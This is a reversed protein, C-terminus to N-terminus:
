NTIEDYKYVFVYAKGGDIEQWSDATKKADRVIIPFRPEYDRVVFYSQEVGVMNMAENMTDRSPSALMAYYLPALPSGSPVPYYFISEPKGKRDVMYYTKFGFEKISASAVVQNAIAIYRNNSGDEDIFRAAAIDTSSLSHGHFPTYADNRPYSVYLTATLVSAFFLPAMIRILTFKQFFVSTFLVSLAYAVFPYLFIDAISVLREVYDNQEFSALSEFHIFGSTLLAECRLAAYLALCVFLFHRHFSNKEAFMSRKFLLFVGGAAFILFAIWGNRAFFYATDLFPFFRTEFLPTRTLTDLLTSLRPISITIPLLPSLLSNIYFALPISTAALFAGGILFTIRAARVRVFYTLLLAVFLCAPIGALPHLSLAFLAFTGALILSRPQPRVCTLASSLMVLLITGYALGWPTTMIFYSYPVALFALIVLLCQEKKIQFFHHLALFALPPISLALILPLLSQHIWEIPLAFLRSFFPVLVYQGIYYFTKPEVVGNIVVIREAAMHLIPDFGFGLPFRIWAVSFSALFHIALICLGLAGGVGRVVATILVITSLTYLVLPLSSLHDWPGLVSDTTQHTLLFGFFGTILPCYLGLFLTRPISPPAKRLDSPVPTLATTLVSALHAVLVPIWLLVILTTESLSGLVYIGSGILTLPVISVLPALLLAICRSSQFLNRATFFGCGLFYGLGIIRVVLSSSANGIFAIM